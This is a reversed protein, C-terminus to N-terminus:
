SKKSSSALAGFYAYSWARRMPDGWFYLTEAASYIDARGRLLAIARRLARALVERDECQLLRRMRLECFATREGVRDGRALQEPLTKSADVEKIHALLGAILAVHDANTTTDVDRLARVLRHTAPVLAAATGDAARRLEARDGRQEALERHWADLSKGWIGHPSFRRLQM